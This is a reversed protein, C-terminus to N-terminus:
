TSIASAVAYTSSQGTTKNIAHVRVAIKTGATIFTGFVAQWDALLNDPSIGAAPIVGIKRFRNKFFSIGASLMPTAEVVWAVDAGVPDPTFALSLTPADTATLALSDVGPTAEPSPINNIGPEGIEFLNRNVLIFLQQGSLIKTLGLANQYPFNLAGTNWGERQSDSLDRWASSFGGLSNRVTAQAVTQPNTPKVRTRLYIGGRNKSYTSGGVSGSADSWHTMTVKLANPTSIQFLSFFWIRLMQFFFMTEKKIATKM